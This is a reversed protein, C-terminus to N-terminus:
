TRTNTARPERPRGCFDPGEQQLPKRLGPPWARPALHLLSAAHSWRGLVAATGHIVAAGLGEMLSASFNSGTGMVQMYIRM